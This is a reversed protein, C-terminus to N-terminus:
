NTTEHNDTKKTLYDESVWIQSGDLLYLFDYKYSLKIDVITRLEDSHQTTVTDGIDFKSEFTLTIKM